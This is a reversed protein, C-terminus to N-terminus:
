LSSVFFSLPSTQRPLAGRKEPPKDAVFSDRRMRNRMGVRGLCVPEKDLHAGLVVLCRPTGPGLDGVVVGTIVWGQM